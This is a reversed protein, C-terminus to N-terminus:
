NTFGPLATVTQDPKVQAPQGVLLRTPGTKSCLIRRSVRQVDAQTVAAIDRLHDVMYSLPLGAAQMANMQASTNRFSAFHMPLSHILYSQADRLEDESPPADCLGTTIQAILTLVNGAAENKTSLTIDFSPAADRDTMDATVGYTLGNEERLTQTLRSGFGGGLIHAMVQAAAYDPDAHNIGPMTVAIFSQPIDLPHLVTKAPFTTHPLAPVSAPVNQAPWTQTLHQTVIRAQELTIDGAFSIRLQAPNRRVALAQRLDQATIRPLSDLTGGINQGYPHDAFVTANVLRAIKWEPQGMNQRLRSLMAARNRALDQGQLHPTNLADNLLAFAMTAHDTATYLSGFFNDRDSVFDLQIGDNDLQAQFEQSNLKGAGETLMQALLQTQGAKEPADPYAGGRLLTLSISIVPLRSDHNVWIQAGNPLTAQQVEIIPRLTADDAAFVSGALMVSLCIAMIYLTFRTM